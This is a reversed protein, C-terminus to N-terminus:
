IERLSPMIWPVGIWEFFEEESQWVPPREADKKLCKWKSKGDTTKTELCDSAKRLGADSGCWGKKRWGGAIKRAAYDASGTRIAYQRFFDAAEPIFLDLVVGEPLKIQVYRGEPRGKLIEGLSRVAECFQPSVQEVVSGTEGFLGGQGVQILKPSCVVEVDKVLARKRRISGAINIRECYPQLKYCLTVAILRAAEYPIRQVPEPNM